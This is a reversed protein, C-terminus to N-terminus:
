PRLYQSLVSKTGAKTSQVTSYKRQFEESDNQSSPNTCPIGGGVWDTNFIHMQHEEINIQHSLPPQRM